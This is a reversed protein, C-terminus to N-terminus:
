SIGDVPQLEGSVSELYVSGSKPCRYERPNQTAILRYGEHGVWGIQIGPNGVVLAFPKVDRIVVSGAGVLSWSGIKIPGVLIVGAGISAFSDIEAARAVWDSSGKLVIKPTVARPNVDNTVVVRPGIFVGEGISAPEYILSHNQIKCTSGIQVGPGVYCYQGISTFDGIRAHERIQTGAWIKVELGITALPSISPLPSIDNM